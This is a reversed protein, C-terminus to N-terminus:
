LFNIKQLFEQRYTKGIPVTTNGIKISNDSFQSIKDIRIIFSRHVRIYQNGKFKNEFAKMTGHVTYRDTDTYLNVYDGVCEILYISDKLVKFVAEGKKIFYVPNDTNKEVITSNLTSSKVAKNVAKNFDNFTFPKVLYGSVNYNFANIAFDKYSTIIIVNQLIPHYAELFDSGSFNPMELDLFVIQPQNEKIFNVADSADEFEALLNLEPQKKIFNAVVHRMLKDDDIIICNCISM